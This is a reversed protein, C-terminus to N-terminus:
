RIRWRREDDDVNEVESSFIKGEDLDQNIKQVWKDQSGEWGLNM